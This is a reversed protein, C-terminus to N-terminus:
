LSPRHRYETAGTTLGEPIMASRPSRQGSESFRRHLIPAQLRQRSAASSWQCGGLRAKSQQVHHGRMADPLRKMENQM